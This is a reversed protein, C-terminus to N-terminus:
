VTHLNHWLRHVLPLIDSVPMVIDELGKIVAWLAKGVGKLVIDKHRAHHLYAEM